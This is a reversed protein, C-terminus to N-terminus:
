VTPFAWCNLEMEIERFGASLSVSMHSALHTASTEPEWNSPHWRNAVPSGDFFITAQGPFTGGQRNGGFDNPYTQFHPIKGIFYGNKMPIIILLVMPNKPTCLMKLCVWKAFQPSIGSSSRAEMLSFYKMSAAPNNMPAVAVINKRHESLHPIGLRGYVGWNM